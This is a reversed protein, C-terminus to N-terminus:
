FGPHLIAHHYQRLVFMLCCLLFLSTCKVTPIVPTVVVGHIAVRQSIYKMFLHFITIQDDLIPLMYVLPHMSM